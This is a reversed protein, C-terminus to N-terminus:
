DDKCWVAITADHAAIASKHGFFMRVGEPDDLEVKTICLWETYFAGKYLARWESWIGPRVDRARLLRITRVGTEAAEQEEQAEQAEQEEAKRLEEQAQLVAKRHEVFLKDVCGPVCVLDCADHSLKAGLLESVEARALMEALKQPDRGFTELYYGSTRLKSM